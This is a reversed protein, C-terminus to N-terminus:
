MSGHVIINVLTAQNQSTPNNMFNRYEQPYVQILGDLLAQRQAVYTPCERTQTWM